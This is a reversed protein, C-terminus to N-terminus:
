KGRTPAQKWILTVLFNAEISASTIVAGAAASLKIGFEVSIEDPRETLSRLKSVIASAAPKLKDLAQDFSVRAKEVIAQPEAMGRMGTRSLTPVDVEVLIVENNALGFEILQKM